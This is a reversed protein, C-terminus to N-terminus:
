PQVMDRRKDILEWKERVGFKMRLFDVYQKASREGIELRRAIEPIPYEILALTDKERGTLHPTTMPAAYKVPRGYDLLTAPM